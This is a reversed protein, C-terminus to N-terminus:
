ANSRAYEITQAIQDDRFKEEDEQQESDLLGIDRALVYFGDGQQRGSARVVLCGFLPM